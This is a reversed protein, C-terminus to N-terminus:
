DRIGETVDNKDFFINLVVALLPVFLIGVFGLVSYGVYLLLLSVLPHVGLNKGIIKPEAFQRILEHVALLIILGIGIGTNGLLLEVISWPVIVTGVGIIPLLDLIAIIVSLLLANKTKMILLGTLM